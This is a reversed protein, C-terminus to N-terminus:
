MHPEDDDEAKRWRVRVRDGVQLNGFNERHELGEGGQQQVLSAASAAHVPVPCAYMGFCPEKKGVSEKLEDTTHKVRMRWGDRALLRLPVAPDRDATTPSVTTLPCRACRAVLHLKAKHGDESASGHQPLIWLTEWSDESWPQIPTNSSGKLVINPRFRRMDVTVPKDRGAISEASPGLSDGKEKEWRQRSLGMISRKESSATKRAPEDSVMQVEEAIKNELAHLSEITAILLPYEDAFHLGRPGELDAAASKSDLEEQEHLPPRYIPYQIRSLHSTTDFQVITAEYGLFDTMWETPTLDGAQAAVPVPIRGDAADGWMPLDSILEWQSLTRESPRLPIRFPKLHPMNALPSLAIVLEENTEDITPQILTLRPEPRLSLVRRTDTRVIAWNRDLELGKKLLEISRVKSGACSKIPYVYIAEVIALDEVEGGVRVTQNPTARKKDILFHQIAGLLLLGLFITLRLANRPDDALAKFAEWDGNLCARFFFNLNDLIAQARGIGGGSSRGGLLPSSM